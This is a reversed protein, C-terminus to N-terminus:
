LVFTLAILLGFFFLSLMEPDVPRARPARANGRGRGHALQSWITLSRWPSPSARLSVSHSFRNM